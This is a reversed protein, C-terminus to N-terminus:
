WNKIWHSQDMGTSTGGTSWLDFTPNYGRTADGANATSYGYSNGFPDKIYTVNGSAPSLQDPKFVIYSSKGTDPSRDHDLDGTLGEYLTLSPGAYSSLNNGITKADLTTTTVYMGNDAKYNELAASIAAMEAEARSRAGQNHVYGSLALVLGALVLIIGIVVILEISTFGAAERFSRYRIAAARFSSHRLFLARHGPHWCSDNRM